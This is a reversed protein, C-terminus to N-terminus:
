LSTARCLEASVYILYAKVVDFLPLKGEKRFISCNWQAQRAVMVSAAGTSLRFVEIDEFKFM